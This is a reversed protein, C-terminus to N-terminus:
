NSPKSGYEYIDAYGMLDLIVRTPIHQFCHRALYELDAKRLEHMLADLLQILYKADLSAYSLQKFSLEDRFWNSKREKKTIEVGLFQKLLNKLTTGDAQPGMLVKAAIKTCSINRPLAAWSNTIFRLDFVAHHFVKELKASSILKCLYKPKKEFIRVLAVPSGKASIQCLAIKDTKWSLGSTEIDWGIRECKMFAKYYEETIDSEFLITEKEM